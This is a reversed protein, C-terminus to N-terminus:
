RLVRFTKGLVRFVDETFEDITPEIVQRQPMVGLGFEHVRAYKVGMPGFEASLTKGKWKMDYSVAGRYHGTDIGLIKPPATVPRKKRRARTREGQFRNEKAWGTMEELVLGLNKRMTPRFLHSARRMDRNLRDIGLIKIGFAVVVEGTRALEVPL